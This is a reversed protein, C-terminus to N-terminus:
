ITLKRKYEKHWELMISLSENFKKFNDGLQESIKTNFDRIVEELAEILSKSNDEVKRLLTKLHNM